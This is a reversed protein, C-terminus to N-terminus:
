YPLRKGSPTRLDLATDRAVQAATKSTITKREIRIQHATMQPRRVM